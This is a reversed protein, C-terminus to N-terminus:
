AMKPVWIELDMNARPTLADKGNTDKTLEFLMYQWRLLMLM